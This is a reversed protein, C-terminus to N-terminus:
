PQRPQLTDPDGLRLPKGLRRHFGPVVPEENEISNSMDGNLMVFDHKGFDIERCLETMDDARGHIDNLIVFSCDPERQRSHGSGSRRANTSM